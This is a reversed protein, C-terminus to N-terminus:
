KNYPREIFEAALLVISTFNGVRVTPVDPSWSLLNVLMGGAAGVTIAALVHYFRQGASKASTKTPRV